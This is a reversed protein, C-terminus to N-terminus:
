RTVKWLLKYRAARNDVGWGKRAPKGNVIGRVAAVWIEKRKVVLAERTVKIGHSHLKPHKDYALLTNVLRLEAPVLVALPSRKQIPHDGDATPVIEVDYDCAVGAFTHNNSYQRVAARRDWRNDSWAYTQWAHFVVKNDFLYRVVEYGGYVGTRAGLVSQVGRFYHYVEPGQAEFDVAFNIPGDWGVGNAQALALRADQEGASAGERAREATSEWAVVVGIQAKAYSELEARDMDKGSKSKLGRGEHNSFYRGVFTVGRAKLAQVGPRGWAFDIGFGSV